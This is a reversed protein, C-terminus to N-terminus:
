PLIQLQSLPLDVITERGFVEIVVKAVDATELQVIVGRFGEFAGTLVAVNAGPHHPFEAPKPPGALLQKSLGTRRKLEACWGSLRAAVQAASQKDLNL